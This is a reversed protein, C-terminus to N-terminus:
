ATRPAVIYPWNWYDLQTTLATYSQESEQGRVKARKLPDSEGLSVWVTRAMGRRVWRQTYLVSRPLNM